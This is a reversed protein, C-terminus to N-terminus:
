FLYALSYDVCMAEDPGRVQIFVSGDPQDGVGLCERQMFVVNNANGCCGPRGEPSVGEPTGFCVVQENGQDCEWFMCVELEPDADLIASTDMNCKPDVTGHYTFWDEDDQDVAGEREGVACGEVEGIDVAAMESDNDEGEPHEACAGPPVCVDMVCQLDDVCMGEDCVCNATGPECIMGTTSGSSESDGPGTSTSDGGSSSEDQGATTGGGTTEGATTGPPDGTTDDSTSTGNDTSAADDDGGDDPCGALVLLTATLFAMAPRM